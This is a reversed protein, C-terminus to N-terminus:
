KTVVQCSTSDCTIENKNAVNTVTSKAYSGDQSSVETESYSTNNTSQSEHVIVSKETDGGSDLAKQPTLPSIVSNQDITQDTEKEVMAPNVSLEKLNGGFLLTNKSYVLICFVVFTLIILVIKTIKM